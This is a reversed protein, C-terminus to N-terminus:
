RRVEIALRKWGSGGRDDRLVVHIPVTGEQPPATWRNESLDGDSADTRDADFTGTPAYWSVLMTEVRSVLASTTPDVAVYPERGACVAATCAPWRVRLTVREGPAVVRSESNRVVDIAVVEPNVNARYEARFRALTEASVRSAGCAVRLRDLAIVDSGGLSAALRVPQYFGGTEDADLPRGESSTSPPVEPGFRRCVDTPVTATADPGVGIPAIAEGRRCRESFPALEALPKRDTCFGWAIPVRASEGAADVVLADFFASQGPAAEAPDTRVALIRPEAVLSIRDDLSPQCAVLAILVARKGAGVGAVGPGKEAFKRRRPLKVM